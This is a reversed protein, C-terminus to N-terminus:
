ENKIYLSTSSSRTVHFHIRRLFLVLNILHVTAAEQEQEQDTRATGILRKLVPNGVTSERVFVQVRVHVFVRVCACTRQELSDSVERM